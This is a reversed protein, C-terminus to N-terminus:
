RVKTIRKGNSMFGIEIMRYDKKRLPFGIGRSKRFDRTIYGKRQLAELLSRASVQYAHGLEQCIEKLTPAYGHEDYFELLFNYVRQQKETLPKMIGRVAARYDYRSYGDGGALGYRGIAMSTAIVSFRCFIYATNIPKLNAGYGNAVHGVIM